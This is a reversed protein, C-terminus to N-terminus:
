NPRVVSSYALAFLLGSAVILLPKEKDSAFFAFVFGISCFIMGFLPWGVMYEVSWELIINPFSFLYMTFTLLCITLSALPKIERRTERAHLRVTAFLVFIAPLGLCFFAFLTNRIWTSTM